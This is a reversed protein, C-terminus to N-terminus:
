AVPLEAREGVGVHGLRHVDHDAWEVIRPQVGPDFPAAREGAIVDDVLLFGGAFNQFGQVGAVGDADQDILVDDGGFSDEDVEEAAFGAGSGREDFEGVM